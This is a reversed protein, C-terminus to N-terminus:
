KEYKSPFFVYDHSNLMELLTKWETPDSFFWAEGDKKVEMVDATTQIFVEMKHSPCGEMRCDEFCRYTRESHIMGM